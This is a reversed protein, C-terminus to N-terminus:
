LSASHLCCEDFLAQPSLRSLLQQLCPLLTKARLSAPSIYHLQYLTLLIFLSLFSEYRKMFVARRVASMLWRAYCDMGRANTNFSSRIIYSCCFCLMRLLQGTTQQSLRYHGGTLASPEYFQSLDSWESPFALKRQVSASQKKSYKTCFRILRRRDYFEFKPRHSAFLMPLGWMALLLARSNTVGLVRRKHLFTQPRQDWRSVKEIWSM